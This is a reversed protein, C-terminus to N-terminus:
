QRNSNRRSSPLPLLFRTALRTRTLPPWCVPCYFPAYAYRSVSITSTRVIPAASVERPIYAGLRTIAKRILLSSLAVRVLTPGLRKSFSSPARSPSRLLLAPQSFTPIILHLLPFSATPALLLHHPLLQHLLHPLLLFLCRPRQQQAALGGM